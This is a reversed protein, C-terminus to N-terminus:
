EIGGNHHRATVTVGIRSRRRFLRMEESGPRGRCLSPMSGRRWWRARLLCRCAIMASRDRRRPRTPPDIARSDTPSIAGPDTSSDGAPAVSKRNDPYSPIRSVIGRDPSDANGSGAPGVNESAVPYNPVNATQYKLTSSLM